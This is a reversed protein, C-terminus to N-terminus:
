RGGRRGDGDLLRPGALQAGLYAHATMSWACRRTRPESHQLPPVAGCAAVSAPSVNGSTAVFFTASPRNRNADCDAHQLLPISPTQRNGAQSERMFPVSRRRLTHFQKTAEAVAQHFRFRRCRKEEASSKGQGFEMNDTTYERDQLRERSGM